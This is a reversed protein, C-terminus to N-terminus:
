VKVGIKKLLIGLPCFGTLGFQFFHLGVFITLFYGFLHIWTGLALSGLIFVGAIVHIWDAVKMERKM